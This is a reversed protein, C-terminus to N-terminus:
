SLCFEHQANHCQQKMSHAPVQRAEGEQGLLQQKWWCSLWNYLEDLLWRGLGECSQVVVAALVAWIETIRPAPPCVASHQQHGAGSYGAACLHSWVNFCAANMGTAAAPVCADTSHYVLCAASREAMEKHAVKM